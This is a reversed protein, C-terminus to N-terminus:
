WDITKSNIMAGAGGLIGVDLIISLPYMKWYITIAIVGVAAWGSYFPGMIYFSRPLLVTFGWGFTFASLSLLAEVAAVGIVFTVNFTLTYNNPFTLLPIESSNRVFATAGLPISILEGLPDVVVLGAGFGGVSVDWRTGNPNIPLGHIKDGISDSDTNLETINKHILSYRSSTQQLITIINKQLWESTKTLNEVTFSPPLIGVKRLLSLKEEFIKMKVHPNKAQNLESDLRTLNSLLNETEDDSLNIEFRNQNIEIVITNANSTLQQLQNRKILAQTGLSSGSAVSIIVLMVAASIGFIKKKLMEM